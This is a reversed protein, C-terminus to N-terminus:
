RLTPIRIIHVLDWYFHISSWGGIEYTTFRMVTLLQIYLTIRSYGLLGCNNMINKELKEVMACPFSVPCGCQGLAVLFANNWLLTFFAEASVLAM